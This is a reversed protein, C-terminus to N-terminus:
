AADHGGGFCRQYKKLIQPAFGTMESLRAYCVATEVKAGVKGRFAKKNEQALAEPCTYYAVGQIGSLMLCISEGEAKEFYQFAICKSEPPFVVQDCAAACQEPSYGVIAKQTVSGQCSSMVEPFEKDVFYSVHKFPLLADRLVNPDEPVAPTLLNNMGKAEDGAADAAKTAPLLAGILDEAEKIAAAETFSTGDAPAKAVLAGIASAEKQAREGAHKAEGGHKAAAGGNVSAFQDGSLSGIKQVLVGLDTLKNGSSVAADGEAQAFEEADGGLSVANALDEATDACVHMEYIDSNTAGGCTSSMYGECPMDCKDSGGGASEQFYPTCYCERGNKLGFFGMQPITRCFEYCLKPTMPKLDEKPFMLHYWIVSVDAWGAAYRHKGQDSHKDAFKQMSDFYCGMWTYGDKYAKDMPVIKDKDSGAGPAAPLIMDDPLGKATTAAKSLTHKMVSNVKSKAEGLTKARVCAKARTAKRFRIADAAIVSLLLIMLVRSMVTM